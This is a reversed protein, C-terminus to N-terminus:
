DHEIGLTSHVRRVFDRTEPYPPVGGHREVAAEGANYAALVQVLDGEFRDALWSLYSAGADLNRAPDFLDRASAGFREGTAPMVQMLGRAGRHSVARPDFDSEVWAVASVLLPNLAHRHAARYILEGYPTPPVPHSRDFRLELGGSGGSTVARLAGPDVARGHRSPSRSAEVAARLRARIRESGADLSRPDAQSWSALESFSFREAEPVKLVVHRSPFWLMGVGIGAAFIVVGAVGSGVLLAALKRRGIIYRYRRNEM